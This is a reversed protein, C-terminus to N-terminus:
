GNLVGAFFLPLMLGLNGACSSACRGSTQSESRVDREAAQPEAGAVLQLFQQVGAVEREDLLGLGELLSSGLPCHNKM